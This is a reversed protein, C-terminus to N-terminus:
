TARALQSPPSSGRQSEEGLRAYVALYADAMREPSFALARTRALTSMRGRLAPEAVLRRLARALMDTDDPPVFVAADEWRERLSPIDALVLACGALGAQLAALDSWAQRAPQVFLAARGLYGAHASSSLEGLLRVSRARMQGGEPHERGGAVLVPWDVRPAVAELVQLNHAEDWWAGSALIFPERVRAPPFDAPSLGPPIVSAAPLPGHHRELSALLDASPTVVHGAARLGRTVEWRALWDREPAAVGRVAENWALPCDLGVVLPARRFPLVGHRAGCLHVADPADRAELELLWAGAADMDEWVADPPEARWTSQEVRLGPLGLLGHWQAATLPAGLTALTVAVGRAGLARCLALSSAWATGGTPTSLLVRRM